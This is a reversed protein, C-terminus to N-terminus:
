ISQLEKVIGEGDTEDERAQKQLDRWATTVPKEAITQMPLFAGHKSRATFLHQSVIGIREAGSEDMQQGSRESSIALAYRLVTAADISESVGSVGLIEEIRGPTILFVKATAPRPGHQLSLFAFDEMRRVNRFPGRGLQSLEDAFSKIKAAIEFRLEKSAQQMRLKQDAIMPAPDILTDVSWQIMRRYQEM